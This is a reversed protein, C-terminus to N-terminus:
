AESLIAADGSEVGANAPLEITNVAPALRRGLRLAAAAAGLCAVILVVFLGGGWAALAASGGVPGLLFGTTFALVAVGNYRGAAEPPALDNIIAPLTPSFLTEGLAFIVMAIVFAGEAAAGSGLHGGAIVVAWSAAWAIAALAVATTRRRGALWRLVLLQLVVVTLTDAAFALSLGHTGIGGPRTAYGPFTSQFQGFSVTVVVALLVWVRVFSKDRLVQWFSGQPATAGAAPDTPAESVAQRQVRLRMLVPIFALYSAADALYVATFTGPHSVSVVAAAVLAGLGLGANFSAHRVSFVASRGTPGAAQALLADQAPWIVSVGLGLLCAAGFLEAASRSFALAASGAAAVVLGAMVARPPTLRDALLGGLPNGALSALAIAAVVLGATGYGLHRVQHAYVFLCPLTLGSGLASLFDGGLVVWAPRPLAPVLAPRRLRRVGAETV